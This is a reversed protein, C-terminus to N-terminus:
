QRGRFYVRSKIGTKRASDSLLYCASSSSSLRLPFLSVFFTDFPDDSSSYSSPSSLLRLPFFPIFITTRSFKLSLLSLVDLPFFAPLFFPSTLPSSSSSSSSTTFLNFTLFTVVTLPHYLLYHATLFFIFLLFLDFPATYRKRGSDHVMWRFALICRRSVGWCDGDQM